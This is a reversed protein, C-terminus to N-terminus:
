ENGTELEFWFCVGNETNSVGYVGNHSEIIRSVIYLGLGTGGYARTRAKDAKYFSEWLHPMVEAPIHEGTNEVEFRLHSGDKQLIRLTIIREGGIHHEANTLYNTVVQRIQDIDADVAGACEFQKQVTINEERLQLSHNELCGEVVAELEFHSLEPKMAGSDIQSVYLLRSVLKNMNNAEDTIVDCYFDRDEESIGVKLGEAYGSILAIPTKLEHSVNSIFEKRMIDAKERNRLDLKLQMNATQLNTIAQELRESLENISNGLAAVEDNGRVKVKSSFDMQAIRGTVKNMQVIPRVFRAAVFAMLICGIVAIFICSYVLFGNTVQLALESAQVTTDVFIHVTLKAFNVAGVMSIYEMGTEADRRLNIVCNENVNLNPVLRLAEEDGAFAPGQRITEGKTLTEGAYRDGYLVTDTAANIMVIRVGNGDEISQLATNYDSVRYNYEFEMVTQAVDIFSQRVVKERHRNYYLPLLLTNATLMLALFVGLVALFVAFLRSSVHKFM